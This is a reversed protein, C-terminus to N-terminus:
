KRWVNDGDHDIVRQCNHLLHRLYGDVRAPTTADRVVAPLHTRIDDLTRLEHRKHLMDDMTAWAFEQPNLDPSNPPAVIIYYPLTTDLAEKRIGDCESGAWGQCNDHMVGVRTQLLESEATLFPLVHTNFVDAMIVGGVGAGDGLNVLPTAVGSFPCFHTAFTDGTV